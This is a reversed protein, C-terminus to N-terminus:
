PLNNHGVSAFRVINSKSPKLPTPLYCVTQYARLVQGNREHTSMLNEHTSMLHDWSYEHTSMLHQSYEHTSMLVWSFEHTVDWSYEHSFCRMCLKNWSRMLHGSINSLNLVDWLMEHTRMLVWSYEHSIEYSYLSRMPHSAESVQNSHSTM